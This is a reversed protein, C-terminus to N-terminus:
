DIKEALHRAFLNIIEVLGYVIFSLVVLVLFAFGFKLLGTMRLSSNLNNIIIKGLTLTALLINAILKWLLLKAKIYEGNLYDKKKNALRNISSSNSLGLNIISFLLLLIKYFTDTKTYMASSMILFAVYLIKTGFDNTIFSINVKPKM